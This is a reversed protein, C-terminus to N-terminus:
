YQGLLQLYEEEHLDMSASASCSPCPQPPLVHRDNELRAASRDFVATFEHGCAHCQFPVHFSVIKAGPRGFIGPIMSGQAMFLQGVNVFRVQLSAPIREMFLLWERIGCSNMRAIHGTDLQLIKTEPPLKGLLELVISFNVDEDLVGVPRLTPAALDNEFELRIKGSDDLVTSVM